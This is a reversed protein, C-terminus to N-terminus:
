TRGGEIVRFGCERCLRAAARQALQAAIESVPTLSRPKTM